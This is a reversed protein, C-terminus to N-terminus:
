FKTLDFIYEPYTCYGSEGYRGTPAAIQNNQLFKEINMFGYNNTDVFASVAKDGSIPYDINVTITAFPEGDPVTFTQVALRKNNMYTNAVLKIEYEENYCKIKYTKM